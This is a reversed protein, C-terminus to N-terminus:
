QNKAEPKATKVDTSVSFQKYNTFQHTNRWHQRPTEVDVTATAPLWLDNDKFAVPAYQVQSHFTRLGLDELNFELDAEMKTIVGSGPEIWAIGQLDLPYTRGRLLLATPSRTGKIHRFQVRMLPKGGITEDDLRSFEFSAQYYPHFILFFTSFGNTVLLSLHKQPHAEAAKKTPDPKQAQPLRSEDLTLDTGTIDVMTLLDFTAQERYEPKGDKRLKEQAVSETCTVQAFQDLFTIVQRGARKLIQPLPPAPTNESWGCVALMLVVAGATWFRRIFFIASHSRQKM